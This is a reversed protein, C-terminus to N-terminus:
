TETAPDCEPLVIQRHGVMTATSVDNSITKARAFKKTVKNMQSVLIDGSLHVKRVPFVSNLTKIRKRINEINDLGSEFVYRLIERSRYYGSDIMHVVEDRTLKLSSKLSPDPFTLKVIKSDFTSNEFIMDQNDFYLLIIYDLEKDILPFVPINDVMAGDFFITDNITIGTNFIPLAVSANLYIETKEPTTGGVNFYSLTRKKIDLLPVYFHNTIVKDSVIDRISNQIFASRLISSVMISYQDATSDLWLKEAAELQDTLFAYSNLAGISAASIYAFDSASFLESVARLAGVQYAGKAMGGSLVLGINRM